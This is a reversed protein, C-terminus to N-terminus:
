LESMSTKKRKLLIFGKLFIPLLILKTYNGSDCNGCKENEASNVDGCSDCIWDRNKNNIIVDEM